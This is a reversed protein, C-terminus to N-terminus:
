DKVLKMGTDLLSKDLGPVIFTAEYGHELSDYEIGFILINEIHTFIELSNNINDYLEVIDGKNITGYVKGLISNDHIETIKIYNNM